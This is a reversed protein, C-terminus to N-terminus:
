EEEEPSVVKWSAATRPAFPRVPADLAGLKKAFAKSSRHFLARHRKHAEKYLRKQLRNMARDLRALCGDELEASIGHLLPRLTEIDQYVGLVDRLRQTRAARRACKGSFWDAVFSLQYRHTVVTKRVEHMAEPTSFDARRAARYGQRLGEALDAAIAQAELRQDMAAHTDALFQHLVGRLHEGERADPLDSGIAAQAAELDGERALGAQRLMDLAELATARDRAHALERATAAAERRATAAVKGPILRLLGRYEKIAKRAGHVMETTDPAIAAEDVRSLAQRLAHALPNQTTSVSAAPAAMGAERGPGSGDRSMKEMESSM